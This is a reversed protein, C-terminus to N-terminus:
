PFAPSSSPFSASSCPPVPDVRFDAAVDLRLPLQRYFLKTSFRSHASGAIVPSPRFLMRFFFLLFYALGDLRNRYAVFPVIPIAADRCFQPAAPHLHVTFPDRM